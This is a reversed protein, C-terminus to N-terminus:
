ALVPPKRAVVQPLEVGELYDSIIYVQGEDVGVDHVTVIGPHRLQALKRAERLSPQEAAPSQACSRIVRLPWRGTSNHTTVSTCM